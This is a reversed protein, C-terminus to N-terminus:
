GQEGLRVHTCEGGAGAGVFPEPGLEFKVREGSDQWPHVEGGGGGGEGACGPRWM